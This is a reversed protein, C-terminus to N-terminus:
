VTSHLAHRLSSDVMRARLDAGDPMVTMGGTSIDEDNDDEGKADDDDVGADYDNDAEDGDFDCFNNGYGLEIIDQQYRRKLNKYNVWHRINQVIQRQLTVVTWQCWAVRM